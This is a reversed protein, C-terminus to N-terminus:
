SNWFTKQCPMICLASHSIRAVSSNEAACHLAEAGGWEGISIILLAALVSGGMLIYGLRSYSIQNKKSSSAYWPTAWESGPNPLRAWKWTGFFYRKSSGFRFVFVVWLLWIGVKTETPDRAILDQVTAGRGGWFFFFCQVLKELHWKQLSYTLSPVM